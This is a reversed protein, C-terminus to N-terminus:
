KLKSACYIFIYKAGAIMDEQLAAMKQHRAYYSFQLLLRLLGSFFLFFFPQPFNM